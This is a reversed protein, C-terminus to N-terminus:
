EVLELLSRFVAYRGEYREKVDAQLAAAHNQQYIQFKEMSEAFYQVSYNVGGDEEEHLLKFLKNEVFLGTAMVDPIHKTKMWELWEKEIQGDINVTVNYLIM